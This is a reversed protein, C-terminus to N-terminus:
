VLHVGTDAAVRQVLGGLPIKTETYAVRKDLERTGWLVHKSADDRERPPAAIASVLFLELVVAISAVRTIQQRVKGPQPPAKSMEWGRGRRSTQSGHPTAM